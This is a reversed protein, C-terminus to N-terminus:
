QPKLGGKRAEGAELIAQRQDAFRRLEAGLRMVIDGCAAQGLDSGIGALAWTLVPALHHVARREYADKILERVAHDYLAQPSNEPPDQRAGTMGPKSGFSQSQQEM